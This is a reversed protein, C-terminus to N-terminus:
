GYAKHEACFWTGIVGRKGDCGFGFHATERCMACRFVQRGDVLLPPVPKLARKFAASPTPPPSPAASPVAAFLDGATM